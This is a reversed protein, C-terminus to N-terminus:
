VIISWEEPVNEGFSLKKLSTKSQMKGHFTDGICDM